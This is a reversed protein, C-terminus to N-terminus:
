WPRTCKPRIASALDIGSGSHTVRRKARCNSVKSYATSISSQLSGTVAVPIASVARRSAAGPQSKKPATAMARLALPSRRWAAPNGHGERRMRIRNRTEQCNTKRVSSASHARRRQWVPPMERKGLGCSRIAGERKVGVRRLCASPGSAKRMSRPFEGPRSRHHGRRSGGHERGLCGSAQDAPMLVADTALQPAASHDRALSPPPLARQKFDSSTSAVKKALRRHRM